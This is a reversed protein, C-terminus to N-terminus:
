VSFVLIFDKLVRLFLKEACELKDKGWCSTREKQFKFAGFYVSRELEGNSWAVRMMIWSCEYVKNKWENGMMGGGSGLPLTWRAAVRMIAVLFFFFLSLSISNNQYFFTVSSVKEKQFFMYRCFLQIAKWKRPPAKPLSLQFSVSQPNLHPFSHISERIEVFSLSAKPQELDNFLDTLIKM